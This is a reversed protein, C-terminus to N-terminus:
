LLVRPVGYVTLMLLTAPLLSGYCHYRDWRYNLWQGNGWNNFIVIIVKNTNPRYIFRWKYDPEYWYTVKPAGM